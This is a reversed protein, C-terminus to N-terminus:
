LKKIAELIALSPLNKINSKKLKFNFKPSFDKFLVAQQNKILLPWETENRLIVCPRGLWCAEKQLGGSDTFIIKSSKCLSIMSSYAMPKILRVKPDLTMKGLLKRTKPHIPFIIEELNTCSSVVFKLLEKLQTISYTNEARHITLVAYKKSLDKEATRSVENLAELMIDGAIIALPREVSPTARSGLRIGEIKLNQLSVKDPVILISSLQDVIIRNREERMTKNGSRIGAEVHVIPIELFTAALSAALTSNMDGFVVCCCPKEKVLISELQAIMESIQKVPSLQSVSLKYTPDQKILESYLNSSLEKTYHQGTDVIFFNLDKNKKLQKVLPFAKVIQPRGGIIIAIKNNKM